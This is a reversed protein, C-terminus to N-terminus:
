QQKKKIIEKAALRIHAELQRMMKSKKWDKMVIVKGM